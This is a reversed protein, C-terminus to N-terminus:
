PGYHYNIKERQGRWVSALDFFLLFFFDGSHQAACGARNIDTPPPRPHSHQAPPHNVHGHHRTKSLICRPNARHWDDRSGAPMVLFLFKTAEYLCFQLPFPSHFCGAATDDTVCINKVEQRLTFIYFLFCELFPQILLPTVNLLPTDDSCVVFGCVTTLKFPSVAAESHSATRM